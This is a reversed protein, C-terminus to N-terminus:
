PAEELPRPTPTRPAPPRPRNAGRTSAPVLFLYVPIGLAVVAAGLAAEFPRQAAFLVIITTLLAIFGIPTAPYGPVRFTDGTPRPLRFLGVVTLTVFATTVCVFYALIADFTALGVVLCALTAQLVIARVPTGFRPHLTGVSRLFIGDKAMAYYVRPATMLVAALSGAIAIVVIAAFVRGGEEGFLAAGAQTAFAPGSGAAEIPVLHIFAVSTLIYVITAAGVGLALSRPLTRKPDRVEGGIKALDWFGGFSFFAGIIGGALGALLPASGPRPAVFPVFNSWAGKSATLGLLVLTGLLVLKLGALFKVMNGAVSVGLASLLALTLISGIAVAKEGGAGLPVLATAYHALGAALAATLGPDMVLLSKWGYLFAVGRGWAERLYVYGGGAEPYRAALEGYCLAGCLVAAGVVLWVALIWFPSGLAKTMEAPTLFIGVGVIEGVVIAAAADLGLTRPPAEKVEGNSALM